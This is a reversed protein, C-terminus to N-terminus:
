HISPLSSRLNQVKTLEDNFRKASARILDWEHLRYSMFRRSIGLNRAAITQSGTKLIESIIREKELLETEQLLTMASTEQWVIGSCNGSAGKTGYVQM